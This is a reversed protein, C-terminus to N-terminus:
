CSSPAVSTGFGMSHESSYKFFKMNLVSVTSRVEEFYAVWTGPKLGDPFSQKMDDGRERGM